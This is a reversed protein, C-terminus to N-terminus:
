RFDGYYSLKNRKDEDLFTSIEREGFLSPLKNIIVPALILYDNPNFHSVSNKIADRVIPALSPATKYIEDFQKDFNIFEYKANAVVYHQFAHRYEHMIAMLITFLIKAPNNKFREDKFISSRIYVCGKEPSNSPANYFGLWDKHASYKEVVEKEQEDNCFVMKPLKLNASTFTQKIYDDIFFNFLKEIEKINEELKEDSYPEQGQMSSSLVNKAQREVSYEETASIGFKELLDILRSFFYGHKLYFSEYQTQM